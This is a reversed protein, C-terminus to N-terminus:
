QPYAAFVRPPSPSACQAPVHVHHSSFTCSAARSSCQPPPRSQISFSPPPRLLSISAVLTICLMLSVILSIYILTGSRMHDGNMGCAVSMGGTNLDISDALLLMAAETEADLEYPNPPAHGDGNSTHHAGGTVLAPATHVRASTSSVLFSESSRTLFIRANVCNAWALGLAPLKLTGSSLRAQHRTFEALSACASAASAAAAPADSEFLDSVQNVIQSCTLLRSAVRDSYQRM